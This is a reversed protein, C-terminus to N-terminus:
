GGAAELVVGLYGQRLGKRDEATLHLAAVKAKPM